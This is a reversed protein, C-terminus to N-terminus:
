YCVFSKSVDPHYLCGQFSRILLYFNEICTASELLRSIIKTNSLLKLVLLRSFFVVCSYNCCALYDTLTESVNQRRACMILTLFFILVSLCLFNSRTLAPKSFIVSRYSDIYTSLKKIQQVSFYFFVLLIFPIM